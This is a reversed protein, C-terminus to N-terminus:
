RGAYGAREAAEAANFCKLYERVFRRQRGTLRVSAPELVAEHERETVANVTFGKLTALISHLEMGPGMGLVIRPGAL